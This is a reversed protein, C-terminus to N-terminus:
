LKGKVAKDSVICSHGSPDEITIKIKERGVLIKNIKKILNKAKKKAAPDDESEAASQIIKKARELLGEINTVYGNSAPGSEMTIVRPIKVTAQGSKVIKINLDEDSEVELTYKCPEKKEVPEVDSKRTGCAECEMSLVFVRGFFPIEIDEEKLIAKKKGCFPCEQDKIEAM